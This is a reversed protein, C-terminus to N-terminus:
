GISGARRNLGVGLMPFNAPLAGTPVGDLSHVGGYSSFEILAPMVARVVPCDGRTPWEGVVERSETLVALYGNEGPASEADRGRLRLYGDVKYIPERTALVARVPKVLLAGAYAAFAIASVLLLPAWIPDRRLQFFTLIGLGIALAASELSITAMGLAGQVVVGREWREWRRQPLSRLRQDSIADKPM